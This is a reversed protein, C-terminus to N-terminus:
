GGLINKWSIMGYLLGGTFNEKKILGM